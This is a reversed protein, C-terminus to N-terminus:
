YTNLWRHLQLELWVCLAMGAAFCLIMLSWMLVKRAM